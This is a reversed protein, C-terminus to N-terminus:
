IDPQTLLTKTKRNEDSVDYFCLLLITAVVGFGVEGVDIARQVGQLAMSKHELAERQFRKDNLLRLQNASVALLASKLPAFMFSMPTLITLYPNQSPSLSCSPCISTVFYDFLNGEISLFGDLPTSMSSPVGRFAASPWMLALAEDAVNDYADLQLLPSPVEGEDESLEAEEFPRQYVLEDGFDDYTANLFIWRGVYADLNAPKFPAFESATVAKQPEKIWRGISCDSHMRENGAVM